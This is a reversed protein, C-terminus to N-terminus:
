LKHRLPRFLPINSLFSSLVVDFSLVKRLQENEAKVKMHLKIRQKLNQQGEGRDVLSLEEIKQLLAEKGKEWAVHEEALVQERLSLGWATEESLKSCEVISLSIM